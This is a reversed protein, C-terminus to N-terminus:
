RPKGMCQFSPDAEPSTLLWVCRQDDLCKKLDDCTTTKACTDIATKAMVALNDPGDDPRPEFSAYYPCAERFPVLMKEPVPPAGSALQAEIRGCPTSLDPARHCAVIAVLAFATPVRM